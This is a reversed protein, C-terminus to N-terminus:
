CDLYSEPHLGSRQIHRQRSHRRREPLVSSHQQMFVSAGRPSEPLSSRKSQGSIASSPINRRGSLSGNEAASGSPSKGIYNCRCNIPKQTPLKSLRLSKNTTKLGRRGGGRCVRLATRAREKRGRGQSVCSRQCGKFLILTEM